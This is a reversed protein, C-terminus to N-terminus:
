PASGGSAAADRQKAAAREARRWAANWARCEACPCKKVRYGYRTGHRFGGEVPSSDSM